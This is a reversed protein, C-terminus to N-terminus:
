MSLVPDSTSSWDQEDTSYNRIDATDLASAAVMTGDLCSNPMHVNKLSSGAFDTGAFNGHCMVAGDLRCDCLKADKFCVEDATINQMDCDYIDAGTFDCFCLETDAMSTSHIRAGAFIASNLTKHSIDFDSLDCDTFDAQEGGEDHLWLLHKAYMVQFQEATLQRYEKEPQAAESSSEHEDYLNCGVLSLLDATGEIGGQQCNECYELHYSIEICDETMILENVEDRRQLEERLLKGNGNTDSINAGFHHYLEEYSNAWQGNESHQTGESVCYDALQRIHDMVACRAKPIFATYRAYDYGESQILIGDDQNEGLVLICHDVGNEYGMLAKRETIFDQDSFLDQYLRAYEAEGLLVIDEVTCPRAKIEPEKGLLRANINM